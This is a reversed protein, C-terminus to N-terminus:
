RSLDAKGRRHHPCQSGHTLSLEAAVMRPRHSSYLEGEGKRSRAVSKFPSLGTFHSLFKKNERASFNSSRKTVAAFGIRVRVTKNQKAVAM